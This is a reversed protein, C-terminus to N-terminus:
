AYFVTVLLGIIATFFSAEIIGRRLARPAQSLDRSDYRWASYLSFFCMTFAMLGSQVFLKLIKFARIKAYTEYVFDTVSYNVIQWVGFIAGLASSANLVALLVPFALVTGLVRPWAILHAPPVGMLNLSDFQGTNKMLIIELIMPGMCAALMVVFTIFPSIEQLQVTVLIQLFSDMGGINMLLIFWIIAWLLGTFFGLFIVPWVSAQFARATQQLALSWILRRRSSTAKLDSGALMLVRGIWATQNLRHGM